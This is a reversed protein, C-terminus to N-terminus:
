GNNIKKIQIKQLYNTKRNAFKCPTLTVRVLSKQKSLYIHLELQLRLTGQVLGVM